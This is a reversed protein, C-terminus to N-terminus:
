PTAGQPRVQGRYFKAQHDEAVLDSVAKDFFTGWTQVRADDMMYPAAELLAGYLYIGPAKTLLWNTPAVDSLAPIRQFYRLRVTGAGKPHTRFTSGTISFQEPEAGDFPHEQTAYDPSVAKLSRPPAYGLATVDRFAIYDAPLSATGDADLTLTATTEMERVRIIRNCRAECLTIFDPVQATFGQDGARMAWAIIATQLNAYTDLAM